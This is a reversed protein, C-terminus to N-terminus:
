KDTPNCVGSVSIKIKLSLQNPYTNKKLTIIINEKLFIVKKKLITRLHLNVLQFLNINWTHRKDYLFIKKSSISALM